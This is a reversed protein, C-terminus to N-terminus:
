EQTGGGVGLIFCPVLKREHFVISRDYIIASSTKTLRKWVAKNKTWSYTLYTICALFTTVSILSGYYFWKQPEYEITIEIQGTQNIYFGALGLYLPTPKIQKGNAYATWAQDLAESIALIFPQTANVTAMIRTPNIKTYSLITAPQNQTTNNFILELGVANLTITYDEIKLESIWITNPFPKNTEHGHWVQIQLYKTTKNTPEFTFTTHTWNFTGDNVYATYTDKLFNKNTDYEVIKIHVSQVNKGKIDAQIQYANGYQAPLLPSDITKWGWTSNWLEANLMNNDQIITSITQWQITKTANQWEEVDTLYTFNWSRESTTIKEIRITTQQLTAPDLIYVYPKSEVYEYIDIQGFKQALYIYPQHTLFTRMENPPIINRGTFNYSIDNRQFIYKINLFDLFAKFENTRNYKIADYLQQLAASINPNLKYGFYYSIIPKQIFRTIFGDEGYYGWTYPMMYDDDPPTILVRSNDPQNDLWEKANYWYDPIKIYSSFPLEPTKTEIPNTVLPYTSIVFTLIFFIAITMKTLETPKHKGIKTNTINHVAYGILLALFPILAMTFKSVPERFMTMNPIYTYLFLNLQSLPENLGKALFLFILIISMLYANFQSRDTKFLLATAALLFPVFTLIILFPNSYSSIYPFYEPRWSWGGNLWFLNLFSARAHTWSWQLVGVESNLALSSGLYYNLVPIVWWLNILISIAILKTINLLLPRTQKRQKITYYLLTIALVLLIIIVNPPNVSAFSLAITSTIAFYVIHKSAAKNNQQLTAELMKILLAMLLPMFAYTWAMGINLRSQLVFFNFTYFISSILPSLRLKPYVTKSLYYMGFSGVIFFFVQIIIQIFEISFGFHILFLWLLGYLIFSAAADTNGMTNVNWLYVDANLTKQPNLWSPFEDGKAIIYGPRLWLLPIVSILLLLLVERKKQLFPKTIAFM